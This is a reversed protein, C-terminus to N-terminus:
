PPLPILIRIDQWRLRAKVSLPQRPLGQSTMPSAGAVVKPAASLKTLWKVFIGAPVPLRKAAILSLEDAITNRGHPINELKLDDFRRVLKQVKDMYAWMLPYYYAKNVQNVVLQSDGWVV